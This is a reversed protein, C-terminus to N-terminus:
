KKHRSKYITREVDDTTIGKERAFKRSKKLMEDFENTENGTEREKFGSIGTRKPRMMGDEEIMAFPAGKKLNMSKRIESPIQIQGKSSLKKNLYGNKIQNNIM